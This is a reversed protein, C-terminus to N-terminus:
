IEVDDALDHTLFFLNAIDRRMNIVTSSRIGFMRVILSGGIEYRCIALGFATSFSSYNYSFAIREHETWNYLNADSILVETPEFNPTTEFEPIYEANRQLITMKILISAM